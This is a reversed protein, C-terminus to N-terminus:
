LNQLSGKADQPRSKPHSSKVDLGPFTPLKTSNGEELITSHSIQFEKSIKKFGQGSEYAAGNKGRITEPLERWRVRTNVRM